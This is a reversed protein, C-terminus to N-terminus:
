GLAALCRGVEARQQAPRALRAGVHQHAVRQAARVHEVKRPPKRCLDCADRQDVRHARILERLQRVVCADVVDHMPRGPQQRRDGPETDSADGTEACPVCSREAVLDGLDGSGQLAGLPQLAEPALGQHDDGGALPLLGAPCGGLVVEGVSEVFLTWRRTGSAVCSESRSSSASAATELRAIRSRMRDTRARRPEM